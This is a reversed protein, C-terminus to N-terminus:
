PKRYSKNYCASKYVKNAKLAKKEKQLESQSKLGPVSLGDNELEFRYIREVNENHMNVSFEGDAWLLILISVTIAATLGTLEISSSFPTRIFHRYALVIFNRLM